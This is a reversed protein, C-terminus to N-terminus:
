LYHGVLSLLRSGFTRENILAAKLSFAGQEILKRPVYSNPMLFKMSLGAMSTFARLKNAIAERKTKYEELIRKQTDEQRYLKIAMEGALEGTLIAHTMGMGGLPDLSEIADGSFFIPLDNPQVRRGCLPGLGIAGPRNYSFVSEKTGLISVNLVQEGVRTFYVEHDRHLFIEVLDHNEEKLPINFKLGWRNKPPSIWPISLLKAVTSNPGDAAIIINPRFVEKKTTVTLNRDLNSLVESFRLAETPLDRLLLKHLTERSVGYLVPKGHRVTTSFDSHRFKYGFHPHVVESFIAPLNAYGISSLGEGCAKPHTFTSRDILTFPVSAVALVRAAMIGALSAGVILIV